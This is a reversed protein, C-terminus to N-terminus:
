GNASPIVFAASEVKLTARYKRGKIALWRRLTQM